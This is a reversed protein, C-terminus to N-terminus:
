KCLRGQFIRRAFGLSDAFGYDVEALVNYRMMWAYGSLGDHERRDTKSACDVAYASYVKGDVILTFWKGIDDCNAVAIYTNAVPVPRPLDHATYGRKQRAAITREMIGPRYQSVRGNQCEKVPMTLSGIPLMALLSIAIM